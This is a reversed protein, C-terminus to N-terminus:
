KTMEHIQVLVSKIINLFNIHYDEHFLHFSLLTRISLSLNNLRQYDDNDNCVMILSLHALIFNIIFPQTIENKKFAKRATQFLIPIDDPYCSIVENCTTFSFQIAERLTFIQYTM